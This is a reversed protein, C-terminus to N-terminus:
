FANVGYVKRLAECNPADLPPEAAQSHTFITCKLGEPNNNV